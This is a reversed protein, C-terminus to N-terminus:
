KWIVLYSWHSILLETFFSITIRHPFHHDKQHTVHWSCHQINLVFIPPRSSLLHGSKSFYSPQTNWIFHYMTKSHYLGIWLCCRIKVEGATRNKSVAETKKTSSNFFTVSVNQHCSPVEILVSKKYLFQYKIKWLLNPRKYKVMCFLAHLESGYESLVPHLVSHRNEKKLLPLSNATTCSWHISILYSIIIHQNMVVTTSNHSLTELSKNVM